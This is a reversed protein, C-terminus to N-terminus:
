ITKLKIKNVKVKYDKLGLKRDLSEEFNNFDIDGNLSDDYDIFQSDQEDYDLNITVKDWSIDAGDYYEANNNAEKILNDYYKKCAEEYAFYKNSIKGNLKLTTVYFTSFRRQLQYVFTNLEESEGFSERLFKM